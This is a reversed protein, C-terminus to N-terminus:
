EVAETGEVGFRWVMGTEGPLWTVSSTLVSLTNKVAALALPTEAGPNEILYEMRASNVLM